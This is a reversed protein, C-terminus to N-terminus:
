ARVEVSVAKPEAFPVGCAVVVVAPFIVATPPMVTVVSRAVAPMLISSILENVTPPTMVVLAASGALTAAKILAAM